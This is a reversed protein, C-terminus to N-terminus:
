IIVAQRGRRLMLNERIEAAKELKKYIPVAVRASIRESKRQQLMKRSKEFYDIV